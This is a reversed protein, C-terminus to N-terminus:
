RFWPSSAKVVIPTCLSKEHLLAAGMAMSVVSVISVNRGRSSVQPDHVKCWSRTTVRCYRKLSEGLLFTTRALCVLLVRRVTCLWLVYMYPLSTCSSAVCFNGLSHGLRVSRGCRSSPTSRPSPRRSGRHASHLCSVLMYLAATRTVWGLSCVLFVRRRLRARCAVPLPLNGLNTISTPGCWSDFNYLPLLLPM